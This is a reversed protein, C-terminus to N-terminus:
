RRSQFVRPRHGVQAGGQEAGPVARISALPQARREVGSVGAPRAREGPAGPPLEASGATARPARPDCAHPREGGALAPDDIQGRVCHRVRFDGLGQEHGLLGDLSV